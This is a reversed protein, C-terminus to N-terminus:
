VNPNHIVFSVVGWIQFDSYKSVDIDAFNKNEAHLFIQNNKKFFRKVTFEGDIFAVIVDGNKVKKARDVILLDGSFIGADHMSEGQVRVFFTAAPHNILFKAIDFNSDIYDDAPSPFGAQVWSLALNM